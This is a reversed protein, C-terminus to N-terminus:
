AYYTRGRHYSLHIHEGRMKLVVEADKPPWALVGCRKAWQEYSRKLKETMDRNKHSLDHLETRDEVMNYLEWDKGHEAVLKWDGMRVARNGEHEWFMEKEKQWPKGELLPAFSEGEPQM